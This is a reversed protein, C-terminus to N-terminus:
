SGSDKIGNLGPTKFRISGKHVIGNDKISADMDPTFPESDRLWQVEDWKIHEFDPHQDYTVPMLKEIIDKFPMDSPVPFCMPSDIMLHQDWGINILQIGKPFTDIGDAHDFEYKGIATVPM